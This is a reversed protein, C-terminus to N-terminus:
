QRRTAFNAASGGCAINRRSIMSRVDIPLRMAAALEDKPCDAAHVKPDGLRLKMVFVSPGTTMSGVFSYCSLLLDVSVILRVIADKKESAEVRCFKKHYYGREDERCLTLFRLEPFDERVELFQRYDDTLVFLCDGAQLGLRGVITKGDVLCAETVKDGGRIQVGSYVSPLSMSKRCAERQSLVYPNLRWVMRAVKAFAGMYDDDIGLEPVCIRQLRDVRVDQAFLVREGYTVLAVLRGIRTLMGKKIKWVVPGLSRQARCLKMIRRWSPLRHFNYKRHFAEHREECFPMFYETWGVGTGFNADDSYMQFRIRHALCYLMADVMYNMEVFLGCDVGIRCVMRRDCSENFKRYVDM